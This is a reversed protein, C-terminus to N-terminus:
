FSCTIRIYLKGDRKTFTATPDYKLINYFDIYSTEKMIVDYLTFYTDFAEQWQGADVANKYRQAVTQIRGLGPEDM